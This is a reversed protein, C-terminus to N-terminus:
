IIEDILGFRLAEDASMEQDKACEVKIEKVTHHTKEALIKYIMAQSEELDKRAEALKKPDRLTDLSLNEKSVHHILIHSHRLAVRKKCGQLIVAAMSSAFCHVVATTEGPYTRLFDYIDLGIGFSGGNSTILVKIAPSGKGIFRLLAERVYYATDEDINGGIAIINQELLGEQVRDLRNNKWM